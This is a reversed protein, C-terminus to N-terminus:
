RTCKYLSNEILEFIEKDFQALIEKGFSTIVLVLLQMNLMFQYINEDFLIDAYMWLSVYKCVICFNTPYLQM